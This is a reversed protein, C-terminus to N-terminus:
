DAFTTDDPKPIVRGGHLLILQEPQNGQQRRRVKIMQLCKSVKDCAAVKIQFKFGALRNGAAVPIEEVAVNFSTVLLKPHAEESQIQEEHHPKCNFVQSVTDFAVLKM